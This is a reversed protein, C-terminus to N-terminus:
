YNIVQDSSPIHIETSHSSKSPHFCTVQECLFPWRTHLCSSNRKSKLVASHLVLLHLLSHNPRLLCCHVLTEDCHFNDRFRFLEGIAIWTNGIREKAWRYIVLLSLSLAASLLRLPNTLPLSSPPTCSAITGLTDEKVDECRVRRTSSCMFILRVPLAYRVALLSACCLSACCLVSMLGTVLHCFEFGFEAECCCCLQDLPVPACVSLSRNGHSVSAPRSAWRSCHSLWTVREGM